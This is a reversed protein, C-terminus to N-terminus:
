AVGTGRPLPRPTAHPRAAGVGQLHESEAPRVGSGEYGRRRVDPTEPQATM